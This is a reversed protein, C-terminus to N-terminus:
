SFGGSTPEWAANTAQTIRRWLRTLTWRPLGVHAQDGKTGWPQGKLKKTEAGIVVPILKEDTKQNVIMAVSPECAV